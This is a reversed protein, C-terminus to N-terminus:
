AKPAQAKPLYGMGQLVEFVFRYGSGDGQELVATIAGLGDEVGAPGATDRALVFAELVDAGTVEYGWGLCIGRLAALAVAFAFSPAETQFDRAARSLTSPACPGQWALAEALDLFKLQKATAFWKGEEGPTSAILDQLLREPALMPYRKALARYRALYTTGSAARLGYRQYAEEYLGSSLLITECCQNIAGEYYGFGRAAEAFKLAEAKKGQALLAQVGVEQYPWLTARPSALLAFLEDYRETVLLCSLALSAGPFYDWEEGGRWCAQLPPLLEELWLTAREPTQCLEGWREGVPALYEVGDEEIAAWLRALWEDRTKPPAPAKVVLAILPDLAKRVAAGLAGSSRDVHELAPWLREMLRVAGEGALVPDAKSVKKIEAVAERLRKTALSSARWSFGGRRFRATFTWKHAKPKTM